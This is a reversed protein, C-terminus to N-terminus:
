EVEGAVIFGQALEGGFEMHRQNIDMGCIWGKGGLVLGGDVVHQGVAHVGAIGAM